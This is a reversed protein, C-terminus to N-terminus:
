FVVELEQYGLADDCLGEINDTRVPWRVRALNKASKKVRQLATLTLFESM